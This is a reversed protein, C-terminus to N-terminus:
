NKMPNINVRMRVNMKDSYFEVNFCELKNLYPWWILIGKIMTVVVVGLFLCVLTVSKMNPQCSKKTSEEQHHQHRDSDGCMENIGCIDNAELVRHFM